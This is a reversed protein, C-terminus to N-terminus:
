SLRPSLPKHLYCEVEVKTPPLTASISRACNQYDQELSLFTEAERVIPANQIKRELQEQCVEQGRKPSNLKDPVLPQLM